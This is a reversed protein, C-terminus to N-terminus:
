CGEENNILEKDEKKKFLFFYVPIIFLISGFVAGFALTIGSLGVSFFNSVIKDNLGVEIGFIFLLFFVSWLTAKDLIQLLKKRNKLLFGTLIGAFLSIFVKIM